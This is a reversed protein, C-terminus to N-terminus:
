FKQPSMEAAKQLRAERFFRKMEEQYVPKGELAEVLLEELIKLFGDDAILVLLALKAPSEFVSKLWHIVRWMDDKTVKEPYKCNMFFSRLRKARDSKADLKKLMAEDYEKLFSIFTKQQEDSFKEADKILRKKKVEELPLRQIQLALLRSSINM